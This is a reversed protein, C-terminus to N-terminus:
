SSRVRARVELGESVKYMIFDVVPPFGPSVVDFRWRQAMIALVLVMEMTAFRFGSCFRNGTGFPAFAMRPLDRRQELWREPIFREPEQFYEEKRMPTRLSLQATTGKPIHHCGLEVDEVATRGLYAVPPTVRMSEDIVASTFALHQIDAFEPARRGLREDVEAELRERAAPNNSLHYFCWTLTVATSEHAAILIAFVEDVLEQESFGGRPHGEDWAQVLHAVLDSRAGAGARALRIAELVQEDLARIAQRATVTKRLPLRKIFRSAPLLGMTAMRRYGDLSGRIVEPDVALDDGFFTRAAISLSLDHCMHDLDFVQGDSIAESRRVTEEIMANSYGELASPTFSPQVLDRRWKHDDGDATVISLTETAKKQQAGKYFCGHKKMLAEEMLAPEFVVSFRNGFVRYDAVDGHERHLREFFETTGHARRRLTKIGDLWGGSTRHSVTKRPPDSM